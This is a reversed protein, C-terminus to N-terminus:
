NIKIHILNVHLYSPSSPSSPSLSLLSLLSLLYFSPSPPLLLSCTHFSALPLLLLPFSLTRIKELSFGMHVAGYRARARTEFFASKQRM